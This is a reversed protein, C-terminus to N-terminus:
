PKVMVKKKILIYKYELIQDKLLVVSKRILPLIFYLIFYVEIILILFNNLNHVLIILM